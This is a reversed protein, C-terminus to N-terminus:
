APCLLMSTTIAKRPSFHPRNVKAPISYPPINFPVIRIIFIRNITIRACPIFFHDTIVKASFIKILSKIKNMIGFFICGIKKVPQM